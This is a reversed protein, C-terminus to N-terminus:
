IENTNQALALKLLIVSGSKPRSFVFRANKPSVYKFFAAQLLEM